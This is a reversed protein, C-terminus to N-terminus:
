IDDNAGLVEIIKDITIELTDYCVLGDRHAIMSIETCAFIPSDTDGIIQELTGTEVIRGENVDHIVHSLRKIQEDSAYKANKGFLKTDKSSPSCFITAGAPLEVNNIMHQLEFQVFSQLEDFFIHATNCAIFGVDADIGGFYSRKLM